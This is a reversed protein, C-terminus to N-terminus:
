RSPAAAARSRVSGSRTPRRPSRSRARAHRISEMRSATNVTDGWLDYIFKKTGIVGAVVPGTDIGIRISSGAERRPQRTRMELAMEAVADRPGATGPPGGSWTRTASRRSRRSASSRPSGTSPSFLENLMTVLEDPPRRRIPTFGVIDTFLVSVSPVDDAIAGAGDKLRVVIADPLINHLLDDSRRQFRDRQKVFYGVIALTVIATAILNFAPDTTEDSSTYRQWLSPTVVAFVVSGLFVALWALSAKLGSVLLASLALALGFMVVLGSEFLGGFLATQALHGVTVCTFILALLLDFRRPWRRMALLIVITLANVILGLVGVWTYGASLDEVGQPITLITAIVFAVMFVRRGGRKTEPEGDVEGIRM